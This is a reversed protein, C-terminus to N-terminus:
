KEPFSFEFEYCVSILENTCCYHRKKANKKVGLFMFATDDM